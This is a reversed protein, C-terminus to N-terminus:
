LRKTFWTTLVDLTDSFAALYREGPHHKPDPVRLEASRFLWRHQDYLDRARSSLVYPNAPESWSAVALLFAYVAAWHSWNPVPEASDDWALLRVLGAAFGPRSAYGIPYSDREEIFGGMALDRAAVRVNKDAYGVARTIEKPSAPEGNLALLFALVDSKASVGFGARLRLLLTAPGSLRLESPGKGLRVPIDDTTRPKWRTDSGQRAWLAFHDLREATEAPFSTRLAEIRRTSLLTAGRAAWWALVDVLRREAEWLALSALVLAEPDIISSPVRASTDRLLMPNLVGWQAWVAELAAERARSALSDASIESM